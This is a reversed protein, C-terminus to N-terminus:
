LYGLSQTPQCYKWEEFRKMVESRIRKSSGAVLARAGQNLGCNRDEVNEYIKPDNRRV